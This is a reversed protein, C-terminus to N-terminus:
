RQQPVLPILPIVFLTHAWFPLWVSTFYIIVTQSWVMFSSSLTYISRCVETKLTKFWFWLRRFWYFQSAKCGMSFLIFNLHRRTNCLRWLSTPIDLPPYIWPIIPIDLPTPIDLPFHTHGSTPIHVTGVWGWGLCPSCHSVTMLPLHTYRPTPIDPHNTHGPSPCTWLTPIDLPQYTWPHNTHGPPHTHGPTPYGGVWGDWGLCLICHSITLLRATCM